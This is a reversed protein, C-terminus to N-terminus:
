SRRYGQRSAPMIVEPDNLLQPITSRGGSTLPLALRAARGKVDPPRDVPLSAHVVRLYDHVVREGAVIEDSLLLGKFCCANCQSEDAPHRCGQFADGILDDPRCARHRCIEGFAVSTESPVSDVMPADGVGRRFLDVAVKTEECLSTSDVTRSGVSGNPNEVFHTRHGPPKQMRHRSRRHITPRADLSREFSRGPLGAQGETEKQDPSSEWSTLFGGVWANGVKEQSSKAVGQSPRDKRDERKLLQSTAINAISDANMQTIQPCDAIARALSCTVQEWSTTRGEPTPAIFETNMQTIQPTVLM